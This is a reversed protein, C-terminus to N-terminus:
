IPATLLKKTAQPNVKPENRWQDVCCYMPQIHTKKNLAAYCLIMVINNDVYRLARDTRRYLNYVNVKLAANRLYVIATYYNLRLPRTMNLTTNYYEVVARGYYLQIEVVIGHRTFIIFYWCKTM